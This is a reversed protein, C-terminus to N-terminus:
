FYDKKEIGLSVMKKHLFTREIDLVQASRTVNGKEQKLVRLIYDREAQERFDKLAMRSDDTVTQALGSKEEKIEKDFSLPLVSEDIIPNYGSM